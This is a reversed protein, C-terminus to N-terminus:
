RFVTSSWALYFCNINGDVASALSNRYAPDRTQSYLKMVEFIGFLILCSKALPYLDGNYYFQAMTQM